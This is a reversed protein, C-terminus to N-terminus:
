TEVIRIGHRYLLLKKKLRYEKTKMGKADEVIRQGNRIYVFDAIYVCSKEVIKGPKFQGAKPGRKYIETSQERQEPILEFKVQLKLNSIEGARELLLLEKYREMEHVSDFVIGNYQCRRNGYKSM